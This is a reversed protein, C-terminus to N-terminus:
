GFQGVYIFTNVKVSMPFSHCRHSKSPIFQTAIKTGMM